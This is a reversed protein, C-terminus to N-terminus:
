SAPKSQWLRPTVTQLRDAPSPAKVSPDVLPNGTLAAAMAAIAFFVKSRPASHALPSGKNWAQVLTKYDNPIQWDAPRGLVEEAKRLSIGDPVVEDGVRNMVIKVKDELSYESLVAIMSLANRISELETQVVLVITDAIELAKRDTPLWGKSLDVLICGAMVRLLSLLRQVTGEHVVRSQLPSEPRPIVYLGSRSRTLSNRLSLMDMTDLREALSDLRVQPQLDLATDASGLILDLDVLVTMSGQDAVALAAGMNVALSTCGVGGRTSLFAIVKGGPPRNLSRGSSLNLLTTSLEDLQVPQELLSKAGQRFARLLLDPSGSAAIIAMRPMSDHIQRVLTLAKDPDEDLNILVGDAGSGRVIYLAQEYQECETELAVWDMGQLMTRFWQRSDRSPDVVVIRTVPEPM